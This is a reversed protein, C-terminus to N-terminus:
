RRVGVDRICSSDPMQSRVSCYRSPGANGITRCGFSLADVRHEDVTELLPVFSHQMFQGAVLLHHLLGPSSSRSVRLRGMTTTSIPVPM